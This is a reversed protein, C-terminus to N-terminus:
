LGKTTDTIRPSYDIESFAGIFMIQDGGQYWKSIDSVVVDPKGYKAMLAARAGVANDLVVRALKGSSFRFLATMHLDGSNYPMSLLAQESSTSNRAVESASLDVALGHSAAKVQDVTMGWKTFQWDARVPTSALAFAGVILSIIM